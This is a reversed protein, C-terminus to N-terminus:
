EVRSLFTMFSSRVRLPEGPTGLGGLRQADRNSQSMFRVKGEVIEADMWEHKPDSAIRLVLDGKRSHRCHWVEGVQPTM